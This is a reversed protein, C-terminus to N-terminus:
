VHIRDSFAPHANCHSPVPADTDDVLEHWDLVLRFLHQFGFPRLVQNYLVRIHQARMYRQFIRFICHRLMAHLPNKYHVMIFFQDTDQGPSINNELLILCFLNLLQHCLSIIQHCCFDPSCYFLRFLYQLLVPYLFERDHIPVPDKAAQYARLVYDFACPM